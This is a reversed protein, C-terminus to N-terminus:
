KKDEKKTSNKKSTPKTSKKTTTSKSTVPKKTAKKVVKDTTTTKSETPKVDDVKKVEVVKEEIKENEKQIDKKSIIEKHFISYSVIGLAYIKFISDIYIGAYPIKHLIWIIGAFLISMWFVFVNKKDMANAIRKAIAVAVIISSISLIFGTFLILVLAAPLGIITITLLLSVLCIAIFMLLGYFFTRIPRTKVIESSKETYKKMGFVIILAVIIAFIIFAILGILLERSFFGSKQSSTNKPSYNVNGSVIDNIGDVESPSTYTLNNGIRCSATDLKFNATVISADRRIYGALTFNSAAVKLDRIVFANESFTVDYGTIYADYMYGGNVNITKACIFLDSYIYSDDNIDVSNALIFVNGDIISNITVKNAMVYVNGAVNYDITVETNILYLDNSVDEKTSSTTSTTDVPTVTSTDSESTSILSVDNSSESNDQESAFSCCSLSLIMIAFLIFIKLCFNKVKKM